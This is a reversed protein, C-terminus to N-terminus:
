VPVKAALSAVKMVDDGFASKLIMALGAGIAFVGFFVKGIRLWTGSHTLSVFFDAVKALAAGIADLGHLTKEAADKAATAGGPIDLASSGGGSGTSLTAPDKVLWKRFVGSNYTAWDEFGTQGRARRNAVLRKAYALAKAPDDAGADSIAHVSNIQLWGRDVTGNANTHRAKTDGGSEAMGIATIVLADGVTFGGARALNYGERPSLYRKAKEAAAHPVVFPLIVAM